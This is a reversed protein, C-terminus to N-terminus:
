VSSIKDRYYTATANLPYRESEEEVLLRELVSAVRIFNLVTYLLFTGRSVPTNLFLGWLSDRSEAKRESSFM